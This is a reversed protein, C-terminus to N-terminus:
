GYIYSILNIIDFFEPLGEEGFKAANRVAENWEYNETTDYVLSIMQIADFFDIEGDGNIEGHISVTESSVVTGSADLVEVVTGTGLKSDEELVVGDINTIRVTMGTAQELSSKIDQVSNNDITIEKLTQQLIEQVNIDKVTVTKTLSYEYNTGNDTIRVACTNVVTATGDFGKNAEFYGEPIKYTIEALVTGAPYVTKDAQAALQIIYMTVKNGKVKANSGALKNVVTINETINDLTLVIEYDTVPKLATIKVTVTGKDYSVTKDINFDIYGANDPEEVEPEVIDFTVTKTGTYNGKGTITITATGVNVNNSYALTYDTGEVLTTSGMKVVPKPTIAAGTYTKDEIVNVTAASLSITPKPEEEVKAMTGFNVTVFKDQETIEIYGSETYEWKVNNLSKSADLMTKYTRVDATYGDNAQIMYRGPAIDKGVIYMGDRVTEKIDTPLKEVDVKTMTGFDVTVFRDQETIEIYTAYGRASKECIGNEWNNVDDLTLYTRVDATYGDNSQIKYIGPAVDKGVVYTGESVETKIDEPMNALDVKTITGGNINVFEEQETIEIYGYFISYFNIYNNYSNYSNVNDLKLYTSVYAMYEDNAQVRYTGPAIDVGVIYTGDEVTSKIDVALNNLDVKTLIANYVSIYADDEKVEIYGYMGILANRPNEDTLTSYAAVNAKENNKGTIKYMGPAIDVGVIYTGEESITTDTGSTTGLVEQWLETDYGTKGDAYTVTGKYLGFTYENLEPANGEFHIDYAPLRPDWDPEASGMGWAYIRGFAYEGLKTISSPITLTKINDGWNDTRTTVLANDAIETVPINNVSSPIVVNDEIESTIGIIIANNGRFMYKINDYVEILNKGGQKVTVETREFATSEINTIHTPLDLTDFTFETMYFADHAITTLNAGFDISNIYSYSFAYAGITTVKMGEITDPITIDVPQEVEDDYIRTYDYITITDDDNQWYYLGQETVGQYIKGKFYAKKIDTDMISIYVEVVEKGEITNPITIEQVGIFKDLLIDDIYIRNDYESYVYGDDTVGYIIENNFTVKKLSTGRFYAYVAVVEQGDITSPITLTEINQFKEEVIDDIILGKPNWEDFNMYYIYGEQTKEYVAKSNLTVKALNTGAFADTGVYEISSPLEITGTLDGCQWFAGGGIRVLNKGFSISKINDRGQFTYEAIEVVPKNEITDPIVLNRTEYNTYGTISIGKGDETYEYEFDEYTLAQVQTVVLMFICVLMFSMVIKTIKIKM